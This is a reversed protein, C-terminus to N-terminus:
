AGRRSAVISTTKAEFIIARSLMVGAFHLNKVDRIDGDEINVERLLKRLGADSQPIVVIRSIELLERESLKNLLKKTIYKLGASEDKELWSGALILDWRDEASERLFLAFLNLDGKEAIIEDRIQEFKMRDIM